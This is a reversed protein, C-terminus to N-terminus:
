QREHNVSILYLWLCLQLYLHYSLKTDWDYRHSAASEGEGRCYVARREARCSVEGSMNVMMNVDVEVHTETSRCTHAQVETAEPCSYAVTDVDLHVHNVYDSQHSARRQLVPCSTTVVQQLMFGPRDPAVKSARVLCKFTWFNM